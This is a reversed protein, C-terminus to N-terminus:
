VVAVGRLVDFIVIIVVVVVPVLVVGVVMVVVVTSNLLLLSCARCFWLLSLWLLWLVTSLLM